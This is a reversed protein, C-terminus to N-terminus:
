PAYKLPPSSERITSPKTSRVRVTVVRVYPWAFQRSTCYAARRGLRLVKRSRWGSALRQEEVIQVITEAPAEGPGTEGVHFRGRQHRPLVRVQTTSREARNEAVRREEVPVVLVIQARIQARPRFRQEEIRPGFRAAEELRM